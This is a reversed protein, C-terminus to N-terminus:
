KLTTKDIALGETILNFLDFGQKLLYVTVMANLENRTVTGKVGIATLNKINAIEKREEETTDSLPRLILKFRDGDYHTQLGKRGIRCNRFKGNVGFYIQKLVGIKVGKKEIVRTNYFVDGRHERIEDRLEKGNIIGEYDVECGLYLHLYDKIDKIM